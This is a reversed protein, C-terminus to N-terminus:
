SSVFTHELARTMSDAKQLGIFRQKKAGDKFIVPHRRRLGEARGM